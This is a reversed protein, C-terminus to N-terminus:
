LCSKSIKPYRFSILGLRVWASGPHFRVLFKTAKRQHILFDWVRSGFFIPQKAQFPACWPVPYWPLCIFIPKNCPWKPTFYAELTKKLVWSEPLSPYDGLNKFNAETKAKVGNQIDTVVSWDGFKPFELFSLAIETNARLPSASFWCERRSSGAPVAPNPPARLHHCWSREASVAGINPCSFQAGQAEFRFWATEFFRTSLLHSAAQGVLLPGTRKQFLEPGDPLELVTHCAADLCNSLKRWNVNQIEMFKRSLDSSFFSGWVLQILGPIHQDPLQFNQNWSQVFPWLAIGQKCTSTAEDLRHSGLMNSSTPQEGLATRDRPSGKSHRQDGLFSRSAHSPCRCALKKTWPSWEWRRWQINDVPHAWWHNWSSQKDIHLASSATHGQDSQEPNSIQWWPSNWAM